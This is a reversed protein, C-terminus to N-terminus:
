ENAVNYIGFAGLVAVVATYAAEATFPLNFDFFTQLALAALAIAGVILKKYKKM